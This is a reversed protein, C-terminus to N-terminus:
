KSFQYSIQFGGGLNDSYGFGSMSGVAVIYPFVTEVCFSKKTGFQFGAAIYIPLTFNDPTDVTINAKTDPALEHVLNVKESTTVRFDFTAGARIYPTPRGEARITFRFELPVGVYTNCQELSRVRYYYTNYGESGMKYYFYDYRSEYKSWTNTVRLGTSLSFRSNFYYEPTFGIHVSKAIRPEMTYYYERSSRYARINDMQRETIGFFNAGASINMAWYPEDALCNSITSLLLAAM